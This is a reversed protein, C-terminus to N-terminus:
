VHARGIEKQAGTACAAILGGGLIITAIYPELLLGRGMAEMVIATEVAGGGLGDRDAPLPLSTWGMEAMEAWERRGYGDVSTVIRCHTDCDYGQAVCRDGSDAVAALSDTDVLSTM